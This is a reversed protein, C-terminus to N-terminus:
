DKGPGSLNRLLFRRALWLLAALGAVLALVGQCAFPNGDEPSVIWLPRPSFTLVFVLLALVALIKRGTGLPTLSDLPPPHGQGFFYVIGAWLLWGPWVLLGLAGLGVILPWRLAQAREGVLSYLVHGGDLQGAPILNLSTVLLGAWGAFAVPHIFVDV